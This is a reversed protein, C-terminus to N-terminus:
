CSDFPILLLRPNEAIREEETARGRDKSIKGVGGFDLVFELSLLAGRAILFNLSICFSTCSCHVVVVVTLHHHLSAAIFHFLFFNGQTGELACESKIEQAIKKHWEVGRWRWCQSSLSSLLFIILIHTHTHAPNLTYM